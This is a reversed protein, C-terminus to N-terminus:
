STARETLIEMIGAPDKSASLLKRTEASNLTKAIAALTKLHNGQQNEPVLFLVIYHVPACDLACFDVGKTSRGFVMVIEELHPLKAHPIAIGGGIGTSSHEERAKLAELAPDRQVTTLASTEVLHDVLEVIAPWHEESQMEAIIREPTLREALTM